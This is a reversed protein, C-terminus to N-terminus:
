ALPWLYSAPTPQSVLLHAKFFFLTLRLSERGLVLRKRTRWEYVRVVVVTRRIPVCMVMIDVLIPVTSLADPFVLPPTECTHLIPGLRFMFLLPYSPSSHASFPLVKVLCEAPIYAPNREPSACQPWLESSKVLLALLDPCQEILYCSSESSNSNSFVDLGHSGIILKPAPSIVGPNLTDVTRASFWLKTRAGTGSLVGARPKSM